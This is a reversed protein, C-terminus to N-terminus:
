PRSKEGGKERKGTRGERVGGSQQILKAGRATWGTQHSAGVAAGNDGRYKIFWAMRQQFRPLKELVDPELTEVAFLPILGM